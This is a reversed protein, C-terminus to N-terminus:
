TPPQWLTAQHATSPGHGPDSGAFGQGGFTSHAFRVAIGGSQDWVEYNKLNIFILSAILM